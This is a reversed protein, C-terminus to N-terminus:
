ILPCRLDVIFVKRDGLSRLVGGGMSGEVLVDGNNEGKGEGVAGVAGVVLVEWCLRGEKSSREMFAEMPMSAESDGGGRAFANGGKGVLRM